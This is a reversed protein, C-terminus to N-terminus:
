AKTPLTLHTYSVTSSNDVLQCAFAINIATEEKDGTLMWLKIGAKRLDALIEPVGDQLKDEIATAGQLTLDCEIEAQLADIANPEGLKLRQVELPDSAAAADKAPCGM